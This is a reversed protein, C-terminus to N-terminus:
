RGLYDDLRQHFHRIRLEQYHALQVKGDRSSKLGRAMQPLNRMDQDLIKALPGIGTAHETFSQDEGLMQPAPAPPCDQGERYRGLMRFDFVCRDPDNGDPIFRYVFNVFYGAWIQLNPFVSYLIADQLESASAGSLDRGSAAGFRDRNIGAIYDRVSTGAPLRFQTLDMGAMRGSSNLTDHLVKDPTIGEVHSSPEGSATIMRTINDGFVDYQSDVDAIFTLLHPHTTRSHLSEFFAEQGIKWNCSIRKRIHLITTSRDLGYDAFHDPLVGLYDLLPPADADFCVFVFGNWSECRLQPLTLADADLHRFDWACPLSRFQGELSWAFGHFPCRLESARGSADRLARGRHLCSNHFARVERDRGRVVIVSRDVIDYLFCDGVDLIDEERCALQWARSWLGAVERDHFARSTYRSAEIPADGGDWPRGTFHDALAVTERAFLEQMRGPNGADDQNKLRFSGPDTM